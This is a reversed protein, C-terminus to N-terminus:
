RRPMIAYRVREDYFRQCFWYLLDFALFAAQLLLVAAWLPLFEPLPLTALDFGAAYVAACVALAFFANCYLLKLAARVVRDPMRRDLWPKFIGYHGLLFVYPLLSIRNPVIALGLGCCAFFMVVAWGYAEEGSLAYIFLSSLFYLALRGTPLVCAAYLCLVTLAACMAGLTLAKTADLKRM